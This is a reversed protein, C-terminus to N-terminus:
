VAGRGAEAALHSKQAPAFRRESFGSPGASGAKANIKPQVFKLHDLLEKSAVGNVQLGADKQYQRIAQKTRAGLTGDASGPRYGHAPLEEQLGIIYAREMQHPIAEVPTEIVLPEAALVRDPSAVGFLAGVALVLTFGLAAFAIRSLFSLRQM